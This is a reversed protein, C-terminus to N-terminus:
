NRRSLLNAIGVDKCVSIIACSPLKPMVLVFCNRRDLTQNGFISVCTSAKILCHMAHWAVSTLVCLAGIRMDGIGDAGHSSIDISKFYGM